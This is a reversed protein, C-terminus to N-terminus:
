GHLQSGPNLRSRSLASLYVGALHEKLEIVEHNKKRILWLLSILVFQLGAVGAFFWVYTSRISISKVLSKFSDPTSASQALLSIFAGVAPMGLSIWDLRPSARIWERYPKERDTSLQVPKKPESVSSMISVRQSINIAAQM